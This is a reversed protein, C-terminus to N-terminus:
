FDVKLGFEFSRGSEPAVDRLFSVSSRIEENTLNNIKIFLLADSNAVLSMNYYVGADVRTYADTSSEFAGPRNQEGAYLVSLNAKVKENNWQLESGVRFPPLRPIDVGNQLSGRIVDGFLRVNLAQRSTEFIDVHVEYELGRFRADDQLYNFIAVEDQNAGSNQLFIYDNFDNYYFTVFGNIGKQYYSLSLDVSNSRETSLGDNGLEIANTAVHAVYDGIQNDLNSFLEQTAPARGSTSLSMGMQWNEDVQWLSSVSGSFSTFSEGIADNNLSVEDNDLRLGVEFSLTDLHYDEIWFIGLKKTTTPPVYAEEGIASFDSSSYQLGFAGHWNNLERHVLELRTEISKNNFITGIEDGELENHRYDNWTLILRLDKIFSDSWNLAGRIDIRDQLTDIRVTEEDEDDHGEEEDDNEEEEHGHAGAPIGYNNDLRSYAIGIYGNDLIRSTGIGFSHADADTNDIFGVSSEEDTDLLARNPIDLNDNSRILGDVHLTTDGFAHNFQGSFLNQNSSSSYRYNLSTQFKEPRKKLIRNDIINIVGGIAGGGYLLTSPGRLIEISEALFSESSIAHDPSLSSADASSTGNLLVAVRPGQQGRIVPQGVGPGFSANAIGVTDQLTEGLTSALNQQLEDATIVSVPLATEASSKHLVTAIVTTEEISQRQNSSQAFATISFISILLLPLYYFKM